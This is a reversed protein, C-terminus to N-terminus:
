FRIFEDNEVEFAGLGFHSAYGLSIPGHVPEAFTLQLLYGIDQPPPAGHKRMRVCHRLRHSEESDWPIFNVAAEPLGRSSLEANVQSILDNSKGSKKVFRPPVFPTLSTWTRAGSKPGILGDLKASIRKPLRRLDDLSGKGVVALQIDDVGGNTWTRRLTSIARQATEGLGMKARILIHDILQDGDLDLPQIYAHQHGNRLPKGHEDKGILEPCHIAQGNGARRVIARHFREAQPLTRTVSPLASKNGSPTTLALLMMEVPPLAQRHPRQPATVEISQSPRWYLVRQSGPPQSWRHGKWWSTDKTLCAILNPPYPSEAKERDKKLKATEKKGKFPDLVTEMQKSRWSRYDGDPVPAMLSIQEYCQDRREGEQCPVANFSETLISTDQVLQAEVWSESRGLYNLNRALNGFLVTEDSNFECPWHILLDGDGVNAFTDWVLTTKQKAGEVYPMFHRTHAATIEPLRYLPLASALKEILSSALPPVDSWRQSTFGCAVLTRLLRWPSPPWEILGENVHHGWPTAHYRGGPFRLQLTPM